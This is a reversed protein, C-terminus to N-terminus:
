TGDRRRRAGRASLVAQMETVQKEGKKMAAAVRKKNGRVEEARQLIRFDEEAQFDKESTHLSM